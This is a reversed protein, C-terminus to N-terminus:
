ATEKKRVVELEIVDRPPGMAKGGKMGSVIEEWGSQERADGIKRARSVAVSTIRGATDLLKMKLAAMLRFLEFKEKPGLGEWDASLIRQELEDHKSISGSVLDTCQEAVGDLKERFEGEWRDRKAEWRAIEAEAKERMSAM